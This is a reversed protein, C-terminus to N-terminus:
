VLDPQLMNIFAEIRTRTEGVPLTTDRELYHFPIHRDRLTQWIIPNDTGHPHCYVQKAIIVGKVNYTEILQCIHAPRRRYNNDKLACHPKDLYRLSLALLRDSQPIVENWFYSSGTCLEDIVVNAGLSEVVRELETDSTQSGILMLRARTNGLAPRTSLQKLTDELLINHEAKDMVQGALVMEMAESGLIAPKDARRLEYIQRMLRRNTNYIEIARDLDDDTIGKGTWEELSKKFFSLESRMLPISRPGDVYDPVFVYRNFPSPTSMHTQSTQFAGRAWDCGEAYGVGDVYDYKGKAFQVLIDRACACHGYMQRDSVDDPEHISLMRVPLVGAAYAIEEPMYPEFYGLIKRGTRNKWDKAYKHRDKLIERFKEM